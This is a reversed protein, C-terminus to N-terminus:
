VKRWTIRGWVKRIEKGARPFLQTAKTFFEDRTETIPITSSVQTVNSRFAKVKRDKSSKPAAVM